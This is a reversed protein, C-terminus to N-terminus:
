LPLAPLLVACSLAPLVGASSLVQLIQSAQVEDCFHFHPIAASATMHRM